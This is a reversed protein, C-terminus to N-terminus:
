PHHRATSGASRPTLAGAQRLELEFLCAEENDPHHPMYRVGLGILNQVFEKVTRTRERCELHYEDMMDLDLAVLADLILNNAYLDPDSGPTPDFLMVCCEGIPDDLTKGRGDENGYTQSPFYFALQTGLAHGGLAYLKHTSLNELADDGVESLRYYAAMLKRAANVQEVSFAPAVFESVNKTQGVCVCQGRRDEHIEVEGHSPHFFVRVHGDEVKRKSRRKWEKSQTGPFETELLAKADASSM